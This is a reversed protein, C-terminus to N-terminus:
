WYFSKASYASNLKVVFVYFMCLFYFQPWTTSYFESEPGRQLTSTQLLEEGRAILCPLESPFWPKPSSLGDRMPMMDSWQSSVLACLPCRRSSLYQCIKPFGVSTVATVRCPSLCLPVTWSSGRSDCCMLWRRGKLCVAPSATVLM